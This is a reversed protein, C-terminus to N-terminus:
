ENVKPLDVRFAVSTGSYQAPFKFQMNDPWKFNVTESNRSIIRTSGPVYIYISTVSFGNSCDM